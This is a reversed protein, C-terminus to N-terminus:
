NNENRYRDKMYEKKIFERLLGGPDEPIERYRRQVALAEEDYQTDEDGKKANMLQSEIEEEQMDNANDDNGENNNSKQEDGSDNNAEAPTNKDETPQNQADQNSPKTDNEESSNSDSQSDANQSSNDEPQESPANQQQENQQNQADSSSNDSSQQEKDQQENGQNKNQEQDQSNQEQNQNDNNGSNSQSNDQQQNQNNQDNDQNDSNNNQNQERNEGCNLASPDDKAKEFLDDLVKKNYVADSNQPNIKLAENFAELAKDYQCMKTLVVGKNYWAVDTKLKSFEKLAEENKEQKYLTIGRWLSDEFKELALDYQADNFLKVGEQNNNLLFGAYAPFSFCSFLIFALLGRRFFPMFCLLAIFVLYYGYDLFNERLNQSLKIKEDNRSKLVSVLKQIDPEKLTLYVGNGKQALMQLKDNGSFSADIIHITYGLNTAEKIKELALDFRQGVDSSFLIINGTTYGAAKFRNLALDIARDLRDGYDPVIDPTIQPLISKIIKIDDTLPTIVYPEQSYVELGFQGDPISDAIDSIMFKARNLRSPSIDTLQMDQALSLVFLSPNEVVFTPIEIKKWSPGSAAFILAFLGTYFYKKLSLKKQSGNNILLFKLLNKDCINEWSSIQEKLGFKKLYFGLPLLLFLLVWPRLFHFNQLFEIM